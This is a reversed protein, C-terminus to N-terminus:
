GCSEINGPPLSAAPFASPRCANKFNHRGLIRTQHSHLPALAISIPRTNFDTQRRTRYQLKIHPPSTYLAKSTHMTTCHLLKKFCANDKYHHKFSQNATSLDLLISRKGPEQRKQRQVSALCLIICFFIAPVKMEKMTRRQHTQVNCSPQLRTTDTSIGLALPHRLPITFRLHKDRRGQHCRAPTEKCSLIASLKTAHRCVSSVM